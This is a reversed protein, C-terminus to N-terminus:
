YPILGAEIGGILTERNYQAPLGGSMGNKILVDKVKQDNMKSVRKRISQRRTRDGKQTTLSITQKRTGRRFPPPKTPNQVGRIKLIGNPFTRMTKKRKGAVAPSPTVVAVKKEEGLKTIKVPADM